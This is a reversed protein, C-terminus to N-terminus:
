LYSSVADWQLRRNLPREAMFALRSSLEKLARINRVPDEALLAMVAAGFQDFAPQDEAEILKKIVDKRKAVPGAVWAKALASDEPSIARASGPIFVSQLRSRLAPLLARPDSASFLLLGAPPPEELIKLLANQAESTAFDADLVIAIRRLSRLPKMRLFHAAERADDIGIAGERPRIVICDFFPATEFLAAVAILAAERFAADGYGWALYAHSLSNSAFRDRFFAPAEM